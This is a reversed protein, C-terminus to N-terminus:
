DRRITGNAAGLLYNIAIQDDSLPLLVSRFLLRRSNFQTLEDELLVPERRELAEKYHCVMKKLLTRSWDHRGNLFVGSYRAVRPGLYHFYPFNQFSTVDLIFCHPWIGAIDGPDIDDLSPYRRAGRKAEWHDWLELVLRRQRPAIEALAAGTGNSVMVGM